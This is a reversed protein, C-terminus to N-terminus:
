YLYDDTYYLDHKFGYMFIWFDCCNEKNPFDERIDLM